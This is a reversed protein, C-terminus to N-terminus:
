GKFTRMCFGLNACPVRIIRRALKNMFINRACCTRRFEMIVWILCFVLKYTAKAHSKGVAQDYLEKGRVPDKGVGDEGYQLRSGFPFITYVKGKELVQEYFEKARVTGKSVGDDGHCLLCGSSFMAKAEGKQTM